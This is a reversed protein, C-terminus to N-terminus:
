RKTETMKHFYGEFMIIDNIKHKSHHQEATRVYQSMVFFSLLM